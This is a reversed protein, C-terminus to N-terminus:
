KFKHKRPRSAQKQTVAAPINKEGKDNVGDVPAEVPMVKFMINVALPAACLLGLILRRFDRKTLQWDEVAELEAVKQSNQNLPETKIKRLPPPESGELLSDSIKRISPAESGPLLENSLAPKKALFKPYLYAPFKTTVSM